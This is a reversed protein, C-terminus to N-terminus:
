WLVGKLNFPHSGLSEHNTYTRLSTSGASMKAQRKEESKAAISLTHYSAGGSVAPAEMLKYRLGEQLQSYFLTDRTELLMNGHGYALCFTRELRRIYDAVKQDGDQSTHRFDQAAM